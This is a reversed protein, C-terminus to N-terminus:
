KVIWANEAVYNRPDFSDYIVGFKSCTVHGNATIILINDPYEEAVEGITYPLYPVHKYKSNLYKNVFKKDDMMTGNFQAIDSLNEYVEDWSKGTAMSIGRVVCDNEYKGLPNDNYFKYAM